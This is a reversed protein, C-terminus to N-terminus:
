SVEVNAINSLVAALNQQAPVIQQAAYGGTQAQNTVTSVTSVTGSAISVRLSNDQQRVASLVGVRDAIVDLLGLLEETTAEQALGGLLPYEAM